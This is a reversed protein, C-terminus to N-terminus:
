LGVNLNERWSKRKIKCTAADRQDDRQDKHGCCELCEIAKLEFKIWNQVCKHGFITMNCDHSTMKVQM